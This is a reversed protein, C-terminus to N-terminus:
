YIGGAWLLTSMLIAVSFHFHELRRAGNMRYPIRQKNQISQQIYTFFYHFREKVNGCTFLIATSLLGGFLFTWFLCPFISEPGMLTGLVSLLKIDGAGLMRLFFLIGLLFLPILGGAFFSLIGARPKQYLSLFFGFLWGICIWINSIREEKLDM